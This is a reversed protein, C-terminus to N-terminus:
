FKHMSKSTKPSAEMELNQLLARLTQRADAVYQILFVDIGSGDLDLMKVMVELVVGLKDIGDKFDPIQRQIDCYIIEDWNSIRVHQIESIGDMQHTEATKKNTTKM